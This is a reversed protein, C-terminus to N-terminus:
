FAKNLPLLLLLRQYPLSLVPITICQQHSHL